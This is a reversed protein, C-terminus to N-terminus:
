EAGGVRAKAAALGAEAISRVEDSGLWSKKAAAELAAIGEPTRATDALYRAAIVRTQERSERKLVGQPALLAAALTEARTPNLTSLARLLTEREDRSLDHFSPDEIRRVLVPGADMIRRQAMARLAALRMAPDDHEVLKGLELKVHDPSPARLAAAEVRLDADGAEALRALAATSAPTRARGLIALL